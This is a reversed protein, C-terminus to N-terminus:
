DEPVMNVETIIEEIDDPDIGLLRIALPDPHQPKLWLMPRNRYRFKIRSGTSLKVDTSAPDGFFLILETNSLSVPSVYRFRAHVVKSTKLDELGEKQPIVDFQLLEIEAVEMGVQTFLWLGLSIIGVLVFLQWLRFRLFYPRLM